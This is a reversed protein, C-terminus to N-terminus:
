TFKTSYLKSLKFKSQVESGGNLQSIHELFHTIFHLTIVFSLQLLQPFVMPSLHVVDSLFVQILDSLTKDLFSHITNKKGATILLM